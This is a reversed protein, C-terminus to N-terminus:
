VAEEKMSAKSYPMDQLFSELAVDFDENSDFYKSLGKMNFCSDFQPLM